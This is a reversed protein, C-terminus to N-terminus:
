KAWKITVGGFYNRPTGPYYYRGFANNIQLMSAYKADFINNIGAHLDIQFPSLNLLYGFKMRGVFYSDAYLTNGDDIPIDGTYQGTINGYLGKKSILEIGTNVTEKPTGTLENGSYDNDDDLFELFEYKMFAGTIFYNMQVNSNLDHTYNLSLELGLHRTKGANIGTIAGSLNTRSVILDKILMYYASVDYQLKGDLMYGRTGVEYNWGMEPQIDPNIAGDPLLTEELNPPSFGHSINGYYHRNSQAHYVLGLRPSLVPDFQYNGSNEISDRVYLDKLQYKTKNFNAGTEISFRSSLDFNAQLFLNYYDRNEVFDSQDLGLIYGSNQQYLNEYIQQKYTDRFYEMGGSVSWPLTGQSKYRLINRFGTGITNEKLIGLPRPRPEFADRYSVFVSSTNSFGTKSGTTYSLGLLVKDYQEFGQAGAWNPAAASPISDYYAQNISSPIFGKLYIYNGVISLHSSKGTNVRGVLGISEREFQNNDRYGDSLMKSHAISFNSHNGGFSVKNVWRNLGYSGVILGSQLTTKQYPAITPKLNIVGGLGAGYISSNPGKIVEVREILALDIDELTTEGVGSTLPIQDFYARIKDTGFPTRGGIGRITIRNTNLSGSHMYVGPIRNLAPTIITQDDRELGKRTIIGISASANKLSENQQSASVIVEHLQTPAVSLPIIIQEEDTNIRVVQSYYGLHNISIDVPLTDVDISFQGENDALTFLSGSSIISSELPEQNAADIIKGKITHQANLSFLSVVLLLSFLNIKKTM